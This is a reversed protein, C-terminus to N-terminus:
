AAHKLTAKRSTRKEQKADEEQQQSARSPLGEVFAQAPTRGNMGRGQHPRRQNYSVMYSDLVVQMEEITEFWTRRGEVRFHEDLLTRHLREVIGNSQPRKVRTTRHEIEELQLFLEYPHQDPRGCFERGNDSLVADIKAAHAEFAPIVDNNMLHVATVPMKSPYLRAWAYRNHCDIATQLYVKGVGKLTGVFFTDVALLSGTHPAEIHRERFEPSFRELLRTQEETLEVTREATAKELRLLREHKTLLGHRQWVGRIGGASVQIGNLRLEQEVRVAGHCPHALAHDLVAQEIEASVRNPHPGKAGPLRDILGEAGYTQYNRRIEYFQQRSYGMLKCARSVNSLDQALQLLSLKRRAIKENTTM